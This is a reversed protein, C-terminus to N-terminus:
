GNIAEDSGIVAFNEGQSNENSRLLREYVAAIQRMNVESDFLQRAKVYGQNGLNTALEENSLVTVIAEALAGVDGPPVLLGTRGHDVIEEVGGIRSAVVPKAMAGAEIVPRAFHPKTSPSAVVDSAAILREVDSRFPLFRVCDSLEHRAVARQVRESYRVYGFYSALRALRPDPGSGPSGSGTILAVAQPLHRRVEAMAEVLALTGKIRGVGGLMLVVKAQAPIGLEARVSDGPLRYDFHGFDVFNYIIVAKHRVGLRRRNDECIFIAEDALVEVLWRLLRRRVGFHGNVVAERVHWVVPVGALWAGLASPALTVSNLHVLDAGYRQLLAKTRWASPLFSVLSRGLGWFGLPNYLPHWGATTHQFDGIGSCVHTEVGKQRFYAVVESDHLCCVVPRYRSPDLHQILYLLSLSAGGLSRGHYIYLITVRKGSM